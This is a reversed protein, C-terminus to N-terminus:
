SGLVVRRHREIYHCKSHELLVARANLNESKKQIWKTGHKTIQLINIPPGVEPVGRDIEMQVFM